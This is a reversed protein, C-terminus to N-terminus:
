QDSCGFWHTPETAQWRVKAAMCREFSVGEIILSSDTIDILRWGPVKSETSALSSTTHHTKNSAANILGLVVAALVAAGQLKKSAM